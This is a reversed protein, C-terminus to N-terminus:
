KLIQNFSVVDTQDGATITLTEKWWGPMSYKLGELMYDGNGLNKTIQPDTPMGHGHQPMLTQISIEADEVPTGDAKEVHITWNFIENITEANQSNQYSVKFVGLGSMVTTSTDLDAPMEMKMNTQMDDNPSSTEGMQMSETSASQPGCAALAGIMGIALILVFMHQLQKM